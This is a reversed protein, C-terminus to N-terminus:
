RSGRLIPGLNPGLGAITSGIDVRPWPASTYAARRLLLSDDPMMAQHLALPCPEYCYTEAVPLHDRRTLERDHKLLVPCM